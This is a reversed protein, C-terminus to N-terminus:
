CHEPQTKGYGLSHTYGGVACVPIIKSTPSTCDNQMDVIVLATDEKTLKGDWPFPYPDARIATM